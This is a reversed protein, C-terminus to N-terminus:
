YLRHESLNVVIGERPADPLVFRTPIVVETGEGPLWVDVNPNAAVMEEYGAGHRRGLSLLTDAHVATVTQVEGIVSDGSEPLVYTAAQVPMLWACALAGLLTTFLCGQSRRANMRPLRATAL